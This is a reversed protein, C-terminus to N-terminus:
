VSVPEIRLLRKGLSGRRFAAVPEYALGAAVGLAAVVAASLGIFAALFCVAAVLSDVAMTDILRAALRTPRPALDSWSARWGRRAAHRRAGLPQMGM